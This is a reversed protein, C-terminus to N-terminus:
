EYPYLKGPPCCEVACRLSVLDSLEEDSFEISDDKFLWLVEQESDASPAAGGTLPHATLSHSLFRRLALHAAEDMEDMLYGSAEELESSRGVSRGVTAGAADADDSDASGLMCPNKVILKQDSSLRRLRRRRDPPPEGEGPQQDSSLSQHLERGM